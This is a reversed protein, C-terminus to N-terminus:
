ITTHLEWRVLFVWAVCNSEMKYLFRQALNVFKFQIRLKNWSISSQPFLFCLFQLAVSVSLTVSTANAKISSPDEQHTEPAFHLKQIESSFYITVSNREVPLFAWEEKTEQSVWPYCRTLIKTSKTYLFIRIHKWHSLSSLTASWQPRDMPWCSNGLHHIIELLPEWLAYVQLASLHGMPIRLSCLQIQSM